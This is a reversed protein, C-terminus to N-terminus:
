ESINTGPKKVGLKKNSFWWRLGFSAAVVGLLSWQYWYPTKGLYEFGVLVHDQVGPIFAGIYPLFLMIVIFEDKWSFQSQRMAEMDWDSEAEAAKMFRKAEAEYKAVDRAIRAEKVKTKGKRYSSFAETVIGLIPLAM